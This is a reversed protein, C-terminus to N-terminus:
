AAPIPFGIGHRTSPFTAFLMTGVLGGALPVIALVQRMDTSTVPDFCMAVNRDSVAVSMFVFLSLVAHFLDIFKLHYSATVEPPPPPTGDIVWLGSRTAVVYRVAGKDDLFSDTLCLFFCAAACLGVLWSTMVRNVEACKGTNTFFPSLVEFALVAGTPLHKALEATGRFARAMTRERGTTEDGGEENDGGSNPQELLPRTMHHGDHTSGAAVSDSSTARRPDESASAAAPSPPAPKKQSELDAPQKKSAM